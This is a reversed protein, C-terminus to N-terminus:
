NNYNHMRLLFLFDRETVELMGKNGFPVFKNEILSGFGVFCDDRKVIRVYKNALDNISIANTYNMLVKMLETDKENNLVFTHKLAKRSTEFTVNVCWGGHEDFNVLANKIVANSIKM